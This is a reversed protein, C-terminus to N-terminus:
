RTTGGANKITALLKPRSASACYRACRAVQARDRLKPEEIPDFIIGAPGAEGGVGRARTTARFAAALPVHFTANYHKYNFSRDIKNTRLLNVPRLAAAASVTRRFWDM